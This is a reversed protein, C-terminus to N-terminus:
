VTMISIMSQRYIYFFNFMTKENKNVKKKRDQGIESQRKKENKFLLKISIQHRLTFM